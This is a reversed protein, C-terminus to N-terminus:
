HQHDAANIDGITITGTFQVRPAVIGIAGSEGGFVTNGAYVSGFDSGLPSSIDGEIVLRSVNAFNDGGDLGGEFIPNDEGLFV